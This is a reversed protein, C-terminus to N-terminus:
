ETEMKIIRGRACESEINTALIVTTGNKNLEWLLDYIEQKGATDLMATPEDAVLVKCKMALIGAIAIRQKQGGSLDYTSHQEFGKMGVKALSEAIIEAHQTKPVKLNQLGFAIDDYVKDFLLNNEPNQFIISITKRLQPFNKTDQTDIGDVRCTGRRPKITGSIIKALTSKGSGNSGKLVVFEGENIQLNFDNLVWTKQGKYRAFVNELKIM